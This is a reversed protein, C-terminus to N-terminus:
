PAISRTRGGPTLSKKVGPRAITGPHGHHPAAAYAAAGHLREGGQGQGGGLHLTAEVGDGVLLPRGVRRAVAPVDGIDHAVHHAAVAHGDGQEAAAAAVLTFQKRNM